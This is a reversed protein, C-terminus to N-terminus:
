LRINWKPDDIKSIDFDKVEKIVPNIKNFHEELEKLLIPKINLYNRIDNGVIKYILITLKM